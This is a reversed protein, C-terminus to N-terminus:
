KRAFIGAVLRGLLMTIQRSKPIKPRTTLVDYNQSRIKRIIEQGGRSFMEIDLRVSKNVLPLLELGLQFLEDTRDCEFKMLKAFRDSFQRQAIEQETVGFTAMDELPIYIRGIKYDREVDQWFNALQLATCTKDSLLQRKDDSYGALYLVLRGVPNASRECYDLVGAYTDFRTIIQDQRFASLLDAYPKIPIKFESNTKALAVFVPHEPAGAYCSSLEKEWWNLLPLANDPGGSEDGLDDSIRCYAYINYFHQRLHKPVFASAVLFNEYHSKALRECYKESDSLTWSGSVVYKCEPLTRTETSISNTTEVAM